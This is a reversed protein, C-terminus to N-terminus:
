LTYAVIIPLLIVNELERGMNEREDNKERKRRKSKRKSKTERLEQKVRQTVDEEERGALFAFGSMSMKRTSRRAISSSRTDVIYTKQPLHHRSLRVVVNVVDIFRLATQIILM